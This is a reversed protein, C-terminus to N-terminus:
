LSLAEEEVKKAILRLKIKDKDVLANYEDWSECMGKPNHPNLETAIQMTGMQNVEDTVKVLIANVKDTMNVGKKNNLKNGMYKNHVIKCL